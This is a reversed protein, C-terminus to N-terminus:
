DLQKTSSSSDETAFADRSSSEKHTFADELEESSLPLSDGKTTQEPEEKKLRVPEQLNKDEQVAARVGIHSTVMQTDANSNLNETNYFSLRSQLTAKEFIYKSTTQEYCYTLASQVTALNKCFDFAWFFSFWKMNQVDIQEFIVDFNHKNQKFQETIVIEEKLLSLHNFSKDRNATKYVNDRAGQEILNSFIPRPTNSIYSETFITFDPLIM